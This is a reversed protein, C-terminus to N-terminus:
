MAAHWVAPAAGNRCAAAAASTRPNPSAEAELLLRVPAAFQSRISARWANKPQPFKLSGSMKIIKSTTNKSCLSDIFKRRPKQKENSSTPFSHGCVCTNHRTHKLGFHICLRLEMHGNDGHM